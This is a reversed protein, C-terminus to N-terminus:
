NQYVSLVDHKINIAVSLELGSGAAVEVTGTTAVFPLSVTYNYRGPPLSLTTQSNNPVEYAQDNITFILTEGAYNKVLLGNSAVGAEQTPSPLVAGSAPLDAPAPSATPTVSAARSTLDEQYLQLEVPRTLPSPEGVKYEPEEQPKASLTLGTVQGAMVAVEGNLSGYPVSATYRYLGPAVDIQLRGPLNNAAAPVKYLAGNLDITLETGNYNTWVLSGQGPAATAPQWTDVVASTVAPAAFPDVEFVYIYERPKELVEGNRDLLANTKELRAAKGVYGGPAIIFTGASGTDVGPVNAAYKYEGEALTLELRGGEPATATGPITYTIDDLDFVMEQGFYNIFVFNPQGESTQQASIITPFSGLVLLMGLFLGLSFLLQKKLM